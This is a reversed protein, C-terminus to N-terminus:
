WTPNPDDLVWDEGFKEAHAICYANFFYQNSCPAIDDHLQERLDDDMLNVAADFNIEKGYANKVEIIRFVKENRDNRDNM